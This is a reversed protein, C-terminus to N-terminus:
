LHRVRARSQGRCIFDCRLNGLSALTLSALAFLGLLLTNFRRSFLSLDVVQEMTRVDYVPQEPDVERIASVIAPTLGESDGEARVVLAMRDQARQRYKWYIQPREDVDLGDYGVHGVV